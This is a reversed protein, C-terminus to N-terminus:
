GGDPLATVRSLVQDLPVHTNVKFEGGVASGAADFRQGYVGYGNGDQLRSHWTVVSGGDALVAIAPYRQEDATHTNARIEGATPATRVDNRPTVIITVTAPESELQGDSAKFTFTDTGFFNASPTYTFGGDANVTVSGFAPNSARTYILPQTDVDIATLTGRQAANEKTPISQPKAIPADNIPVVNISVTAAASELAGESVKFKFADTGSFNSVPTYLFTGDPNVIVSGNAPDSAKVYSLTRSGDGSAALRGSKTTDEDAIV